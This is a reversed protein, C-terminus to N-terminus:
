KSVLGHMGRSIHATVDRLALVPNIGGSVAMYRPEWVPQFKNKFARLGHFNYFARGHEFAARGVRHWLPAVPSESLGALPAMGLVFERYGEAKYHMLVHVFLTEMAGNPADPSFRMLDVTVQAKDGGTAINAFAVIRGEVSLVAVPQTALYAPDFHGLSFSKERVAHHALWADSVARLEAMAAEAEAPSLIAFRVGDREARNVAHRFSSRKSGKLDFGELPIHAMEGLKFASLGADAYLSLSQPGVQYFVARGGAERATEVFRWVLDHWADRPGIPDFLAIWSQGRRGYMIFARGDESFMLSKDGMRVLNADAVPQEAVIAVARAIEEAGPPPVPIKPSRLLLWGAGAAVALAIGLLARLSRPADAGFEFQWWLRHTYEVDKYAFILITVAAIVLTAVALWWAPTLRQHLLSAPRRFERRSALLAVLLVAILTAEIYAFGKLFAFVFAVALTVVGAWWAGDLRHVLGRAVLLLFVGLISSVFHAAEVLDLPVFRALLAEGADDSPTVGSFILMTAVVLMLTGLVLPALAAGAEAVLAASPDRAFRRLEAVAVLVVAVLLPLVYYVIRYLVLAGLVSELPAAGALAALVVTEFVGLGGPVHSAIGVGVAVAYIAIFAPLPVTDPPLLVWLTGAAAAVDVLTAVLQILIDRAPPLRVVTGRLKLGRHPQLSQALLAVVLVLIVIGVLRLVLSPVGITESLHRADILLGLSTLAALGIGFAATVYGVIRAADEPPVGHPGYFRFRIAGGTLPGFGAANGVAYACFSTLVVSRAAIRHGVFRLAMFDYASLAVFSVATLTVAAIPRWLPMAGLADMLDSWVIEDLLNTITAAALLVVLLFAVRGILPRHRAVLHAARLRLRALRQAAVSDSHVVM